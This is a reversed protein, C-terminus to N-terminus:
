RNENKLKEKNSKNIWHKFYPNFITNTLADVNDCEKRCLNYFKTKQTLAFNGLVLADYPRHLKEIDEKSNWFREYKDAWLTLKEYEQNFIVLGTEYCDWTQTNSRMLAVPNSFSFNFLSEDVKDLQEIDSDLWIIREDPERNKIAHIQACSKGWFKRIKTKVDFDDTIELPPVKLLTKNHPIENFWEVDGEQQDIYIVIEGPLNWTNICHKGISNWYGQSISTVFKLKM